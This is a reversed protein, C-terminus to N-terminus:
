KSSTKIEIWAGRAPLSGDEVRRVDAQRFKLGREGRPSRSLVSDPMDMEGFKLGREGRPSRCTNERYNWYNILIEIWAGRAPLSKNEHIHLSVVLYKM